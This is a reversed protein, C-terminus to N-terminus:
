WYTGITIIRIVYCIGTIIHLIYLASLIKNKRILGEKKIDRILAKLSEFFCIWICIVIQWYFNGHWMTPGEEVLLLYILFAPILLYFAYWYRLNGKLSKYNWITYIFPFLLSFIISIPLDLYSGNARFLCLFCIGISSKEETEIRTDAFIYIALYEIILFISGVVIPVLSSWFIKSFKYKRLMMLPYICAFVLFFNPKIFINVFILAILLWNRKTQYNQIQKYSEIFLLIAFPFLLITTSNHWVNPVFTGLYLYGKKLLVPIPISSIFLLSIGILTSFWCNKKENEYLNISSIEKQVIFFRCVSAIALIGCIANITYSINTSFLSFIGSLLYFIFNGEVSIEGSWMKITKEAHMRIDDKLNMASFHYLIFLLALLALFICIQSKDIKIKM